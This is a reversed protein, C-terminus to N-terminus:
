AARWCPVNVYTTGVWIKIWGHFVGASGNVRWNGIAAAATDGTADLVNTFTTTSAIGTGEDGDVIVGRSRVDLVVDLAAPLTVLDTSSNVIISGGARNDIYFHADNHTQGFDWTNVGNQKHSVYNSTATAGEFVLAVSGVQNGITVTASNYSVAVAGTITAAQARVDSWEGTAAVGLALGGQSTPYLAANTLELENTNQVRVIWKNMDLDYSFAAQLPAAGEAVAIGAKRISSGDMKFTMGRDSTAGDGIIFDDYSTDVNTVSGTANDIFVRTSFNGKVGFVDDWRASSSGIDMTGDPLWAAASLHARATGETYISFRTLNHDYEFQGATASTADGFYIISQNINGGTLISLSYDQSTTQNGVVVSNDHTLVGTTTNVTLTAILAAAATFFRHRYNGSDLDASARVVLSGDAHELAATNTIQPNSGTGTTRGQALSNAWTHDSWIPNAAAGQTKLVQGSTGAALRTWVTANRYLIDGQAESAFKFNTVEHTHDSRALTTAAGEANAGGVAVAAATDIDHKHDSRSFTTAVGEAAAAKTVNVPVAFLSGAGTDMFIQHWVAPSLSHLVYLQGNSTKCIKGIDAAELSLADRAATDTVLWNYPVHIGETPGLTDHRRGTTV